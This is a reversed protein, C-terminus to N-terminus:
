KEIQYTYYLNNDINIQNYLFVITKCRQEYLSFLYLFKTIDAVM